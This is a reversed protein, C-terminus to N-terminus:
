SARTEIRDAGAAALIQRVQPARETVHIVLALRGAHLRAQYEAAEEASMGRSELWAALGGGAALGGIVAGVPGLLAGVLVAGAAAGVTAVDVTKNARQDADDPVGVAEHERSVLSFDEESFGAAKLRGIADEAQTRTEFAGVVVAM